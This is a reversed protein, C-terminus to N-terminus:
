ARALSPNTDNLLRHTTSLVQHLCPDLDLPRGLELRLLPWYTPNATVWCAHLVDSCTPDPLGWYRRIKITGM